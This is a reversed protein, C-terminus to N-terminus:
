LGVRMRGPNLVGAPDLAAKVRRGIAALAPAEEPIVAVAARLAEPARFLQYTGGARAVAGAVALHAAETAPGAVWLLGGGWDFQPRAGFAQALAAAVGAAAGPRVSLRWVAEGPELFRGERIAQWLARSPPDDLLDVPGFPEVVARLKALRAPLFDAFDELRLCAALGEATDRIAAGTVGYPSTLGASLARVGSAVDAVRVALTATAEPRPLVKITVETIVGLTGHSGSLLKCLDLGTVNKLVRGGSRLVEGAGNVFRIGLVHDRMAGAAIRRPGSLNTAVVGGITAGPGDPGLFALRAPPEAILHQGHEALAAEIGAIPTGARASLILEQPRYLTIGSVNRTSLTRAAQVPRLLGRKSGNGEIALPERAAAAAAIAAAIAAESEPALLTAAASM